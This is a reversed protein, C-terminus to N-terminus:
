PRATRLRDVLVARAARGEPTPLLPYVHLQGVGDHLEVAVGAARARAVLLEIDPRTIDRTGSFVTLPGLGAPDGCLPSVRPDDLPLGGRWHEILVRTGERGLWPDSPQVADIGPNTLSLDLAPAVLVTRPLVVGHRDRLVLASSLAVQGGASDGALCAGGHADVARLVLDVVAGVVQEATGFPVLPYVPVLVTTGAEAAVQACLRWHQPAIEEVWAGGHVYVVAGRAAGSRPALAYVPVGAAHDVSVAVDRRLLRPPGYPRPRLARERVHRRAAGADVFWRNARSARLLAEVALSSLSPM